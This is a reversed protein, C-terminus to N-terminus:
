IYSKEKIECPLCSSPVNFTIGAMTYKAEFWKLTWMRNWIRRESRAPRMCVCVRMSLCIWVYCSPYFSRLFFPWFMICSRAGDYYTKTNTVLEPMFLQVVFCIWFISLNATHKFTLSKSVATKNILRVFKFHFLLLDCCIYVADSLAYQLFISHAFPISHSLSLWCHFIVRYWVCM